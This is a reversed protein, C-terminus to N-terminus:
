AQAYSKTALKHQKIWHEKMWYLLQSSIHRHFTFILVNAHCYKFFKLFILVSVCFNFIFTNKNGVSSTLFKWSHSFVFSFSYNLHHLNHGQLSHVRKTKFLKFQKKRKLHVNYLSLIEQVMKVMLFFNPSTKGKKDKM